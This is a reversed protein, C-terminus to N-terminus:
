GERERTADEQMKTKLLQSSSGKCMWNLAKKAMVILRPQLNKQQINAVFSFSCQINIYNQYLKEIIYFNNKKTFFLILYSIEFEHFHTDRQLQM